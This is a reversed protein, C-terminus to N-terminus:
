ISDYQPERVDTKYKSTIIIVIPKYWTHLYLVNEILLKEFDSSNHHAAQNLILLWTIVTLPLNDHIDYTFM